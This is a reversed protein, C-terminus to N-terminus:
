RRQEILFQIVQRKELEAQGAANLKESIAFERKAEDSQGLRKYALGLRYHAAALKPNLQIARVLIPISKEIERESQMILALQLYAEPFNNKLQVARGLNAKALRFDPQPDLQAQQYLIAGYHLYAWPDDPNNATYSNFAERIASQSSGASEYVRGLLFYASELKPAISLAKLLVQAAEEFKATLYYACGLGLGMKVSKPFDRVGSAFIAIAATTTKHQL